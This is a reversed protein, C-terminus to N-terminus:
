KKNFFINKLKNYFTKKSNSSINTDKNKENFFNIEKLLEMRYIDLKNEKYYRKQSRVWEGLSKDESYNRPVNCDGKINKYKILKKYNLYWNEDIKRFFIGLDYFYIVESLSLEKNKFKLSQEKIFDSVDKNLKLFEDFPINKDRNKLKEHILKESEEKTNLDISAANLKKIKDASLLNEKYYDQQQMMWKELKKRIQKNFLEINLYSFLMEDWTIEFDLDYKKFADIEYQKHNKKYKQKIFWIYTYTMEKNDNAFILDYFNDNEKSWKIKKIKNLYQYKNKEERSQYKIENEIQYKEIDEFNYKISKENHIFGNCNGEIISDIINYIDNINYEPYVYILHCKNEESVIKKKNDLIIREKFAKEGGFFNIPKEHQLGQYEIAINKDEFFIDFHQPKLWKPSAHQIISLESYHEKIEYFLNTENIWGEGIKPVGIYERYENEIQKFEKNFKYLIGEYFIPLMRKYEVFIHNDTSTRLIEYRYFYGWGDVKKGDYFDSNYNEKLFEFKEKDEFWDELIDFYNGKKIDDDLINLYHILINKQDYREFYNNIFNIFQNSHLQKKLFNSMKYYKSYIDLIEKTNLNKDRCNCKIRLILDIDIKEINSVIEWAKDFDGIYIEAEIQWRILYRRIDKYIGYGDKIKKFKKNLYNISKNKKFKEIVEYIYLFVYSISEKVDIYNGKLFNKRWEYYFDRQNKDLDCLRPSYTLLKPIGLTLENKINDIDIKNKLCYSIDNIIYEVSDYNCLIGQELQNNFYRKLVNNDIERIDIDNIINNLMFSCVFDLHNKFGNLTFLDISENKAKLKNLKHYYYKFFVERNKENIKKMNVILKKKNVSYNTYIEKCTGDYSFDKKQVRIKEKSMDEYIKDWDMFKTM